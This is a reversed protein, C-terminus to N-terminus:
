VMALRGAYIRVRTGRKGRSTTARASSHPLPVNATVVGSSLSGEVETDDETLDIVEISPKKASSTEDYRASTM